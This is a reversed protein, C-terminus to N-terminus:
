KEGWVALLRKALYAASLDPILSILESKATEAEDPQPKGLAAYFLDELEPSRRLKVGTDLVPRYGGLDYKGLAQLLAIIAAKEGTNLDKM